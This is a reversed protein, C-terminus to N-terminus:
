WGDYQDIHGGEWIRMEGCEECQVIVRLNRRGGGGTSKWKHDGPCIYQAFYEQIEDAPSPNTLDITTEKNCDRCYIEGTQKNLKLTHAYSLNSKVQEIVETYQEEESHGNDDSFVGM